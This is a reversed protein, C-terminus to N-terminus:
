RILSMRHTGVYAGATLRVFYVGSGLDRGADDRGDWTATYRGRPQERDVLTRVRRGTVDLVDLRVAARSAVDYSVRTLPNFPNPANAFLRTVRPAGLTTGPPSGPGIPTNDRELLTLRQDVAVGTTDFAAGSPWRVSLTDVVTSDSLGFHAVLDDQSLYGMGSAIERVQAHDGTVVRVRAGIGQPNSAVGQLAVSLWHHGSTDDNRYLHDAGASNPAYVDLDGDADYDAVALSYPSGASPLVQGSYPVFTGTDQGRLLKLGDDFDCVMLDLWGDLDFDLWAAGTSAGSLNVPGSTATVDVLQGADNRYLVNPNDYRTVYLDLDGDADMDGWVGAVSNEGGERNAVSPWVDTFVGDDNRYLRDDPGLNAVFLDADGDDDYDAWSAGWSGFGEGVGAATTVDEFTHGDVNRLLRNAVFDDTIYLDVYGDADYDGWTADRPTFSLVPPAAIDVWDGGGDNRFLRCGTTANGVFLDLDEDRDIDAFIAARGKGADALPGGVETFTGAGDNEYVDNAANDNTVYLDLAGNGTFDAWAAGRAFDFSIPLSSTADVYENAQEMSPEPDVIFLGQQTDTMIVVGSPFDVFVGWAGSFVAADSFPQSDVYGVEQVSGLDDITSIDYIRLGSTYNAQFTYNGRVFQNHDKSTNGNTFSGVYSAAYLNEVNFVYTTTTPVNGPEDGEDDLLLFRRDETLDSQHVISATPYPARSMQVPNQKDTVDVIRIAGDNQTACFAVEKGAYPGETYSVVDVDHVYPGPWAGAYTPNTPTSVDVFVLSGGNIDGGVLYLYGSEPNVFVNHATSIGGPGYTGMSTVIGSDINTLNFGQMGNGTGSSLDYVMYAYDEYVAMDSWTSSPRSFEQVLVPNRPDTIEVFATRNTQGVIAYERGSPSVYGWVDTFAAGGFESPGMVALLEVGSVDFVPEGREYAAEIAAAQAPDHRLVAPDFESGDPLFRPVAHAATAVLGCAVFALSIRNM